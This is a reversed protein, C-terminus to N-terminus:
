PLAAAPFDVATLTKYKARAAKLNERAIGLLEGEDHLVRLDVVGSPNARERAINTEHQRTEATLVVVDAFNHLWADLWPVPLPLLVTLGTGISHYFPLRKAEPLKSMEAGWIRTTEADFLTLAGTHGDPLVIATGGMAIPDGDKCAKVPHSPMAALHLCLALTTMM